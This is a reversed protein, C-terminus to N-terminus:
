LASRMVAPRGGTAYHIALQAHALREASFGEHMAQALVGYAAVWANRVEPTFAPGLGRELTWLLAAGVTVFDRETVGYEAHRRGLLRATPIIEELHDLGRVAVALMQMLMRSQDSPDGQFLNRAEPDLQLLRGYFLLGAHDAVPSLMAFSHQVLQIQEPTMRKAAHVVAHRVLGAM